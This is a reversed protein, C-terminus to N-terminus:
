SIRTSILWQKVDEIQNPAMLSPVHGCDEYTVVAMHPQRDKMRRTIDETLLVSQGGRLLLIPCTLASFREWLDIAGVPDTEFRLRIAPDYHYTLRDDSLKRYNHAAMHSWQEDTIPGWILGRNERMQKELEDFDAFTYTESLVLKIFDIAEEPVEPGIDNLILTKFYDSFEPKGAMRMGILGGLSTGIFDFNKLNLHEILDVLNGVYAGHRYNMPDELFDSGGRGPLDLAIVRYGQQALAPALYDFDHKNCTLGHVALVAPGDAPGWESYVLRAGDSVFSGERSEM